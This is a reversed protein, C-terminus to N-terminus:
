QAQRLGRREAEVRAMRGFARCDRATAVYTTVLPRPKVADPGDRGDGPIYSTVSLVKNERWRSHTDPDKERGQYRGGDMGVVLLLPANAPCAPRQGQDTARVQADRKKVISAGVAESWRQVQKGDLLELR